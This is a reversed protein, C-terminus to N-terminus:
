WSRQELETAIGRQVSTIARFTERLASRELRTLRAPDLYDDPPVGRRLQDVQHNIRLESLVGFAQLLLEADSRALLGSTAVSHLRERTSASTVGAALALSRALDSIPLLGGHKIDLRGAHEGSHEVVINRLFGTPPRYALAFRMMRRLLDPHRHADEFARLLPAGAYMGWVPRSDLVVSSLILAKEQDPDVIWSAAAALWADLSRSFLPNDATAGRDCSPFGCGRLQGVVIGAISRVYEREEGDDDDGHWVLASDLDSSPASERRAHSGLALWSFDKPPRGAEAVALDILRRTAADAIVAITTSITTAPTSADHLAIVTEPLRRAAEQVEEPTAAVAIANRLHFPARSEATLMETDAIVGLVEGTAALVPFHRVGRDLMELLVESGLRDGTVTYAPASMVGSVPEDISTGAAIVRSRLDRDTVIGYGSQGLDVVASTSRAETMMAATRRISTGPAVVVPSRRLLGSVPRSLPDPGAATPRAGLSRALFRLGEPRALLTRVADAPIRYELVDEAARSGLAAPAESLMSEYGFVDGPGLLDVPRGDDTLEVGGRRVVRMWESPPAGQATIIAGAAFYEIEVAESLTELEDEALGDFPPYQRLFAAIDHM